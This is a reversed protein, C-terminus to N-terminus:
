EDLLTFEIVRKTTSQQHCSTQQNNLSKPIIMSITEINTEKKLLEIFEKADNYSQEIPITKGGFSYRLDKENHRMLLLLYSDFQKVSNYVILGSIKRFNFNKATDLRKHYKYVECNLNGDSNIIAIAKKDIKCDDKLQKALSIVHKIINVPDKTFIWTTRRKDKENELEVVIKIDSPVKNRNIIIVEVEKINKNKYEELINHQIVCTQKKKINTEINLEPIKNELKYHTLLIHKTFCNSNSWKEKNYGEPYISNYKYIAKFELVNLKHIEKCSIITDIDIEFNESGYKKIDSYFETTPTVSKQIHRRWRDKIGTKVWKDESSFYHHSLTQGIYIKNNVKNKIIYIIGKLIEDFEEEPFYPLKKDKYYTYDSDNM